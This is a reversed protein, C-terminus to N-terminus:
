PGFTEDLTGDPNYRALFVYSRMSEDKATGLVLIKSTGDLQPQFLVSVPGWGQRVEESLILTFVAGGTGFTDDLSGDPNFRGVALHYRGDDTVGAAVIKGSGPHIAMPGPYTGPRGLNTAALGGSGFNTDLTGLSSYRALGFRCSGADDHVNGCVVISGDADLALSTQYLGFNTIVMGDQGFTTDRSGDSNFRVLLFNAWAAGGLVLIKGQSDMTACTARAGVIGTQVIGGIGFTTDLKGASTYRVLNPPSSSGYWSSDVTVIKGGSQPLVAIASGPGSTTVYGKKNFQTDLSGDTKYRVLAQDTKYPSMQAEGGLLIKGTVPEPAAARPGDWFNKNVPTIVKGGNGFTTDLAGDPLYRLVAFHGASQAAVVIRGQADLFSGRATDSSTPTFSTLVIGTGAQAAALPILVAAGFVLLTLLGARFWKWNKSM